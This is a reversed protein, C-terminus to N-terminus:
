ITFPGDGCNFLKETAKISSYAALQMELASAVAEANDCEVFFIGVM